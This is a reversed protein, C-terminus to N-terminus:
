DAGVAVGIEGDDGVWARFMAASNFPMAINGHRDISIFGGRGGLKSVDDLTRAGADVLSSGAYRMRADIEFGVGVRIFVEGTGTCSVAASRDDAFTGAGIIPTDGVRGPLKNTLGGTSTAAALHGDADLAVAGVTGFASDHDLVVVNHQQAKRLQRRRLEIIFYEPDVSDLGLEVNAADAGEGQFMVHPSREMITRALHIPSRARRAGAVAGCRRDRGDMIAADLEPAGDRNLVAGIGANFLPCEELRLVLREVADVSSAGDKLMQLGEAAIRRLAARQESTDVSDDLEGAGGHIALRIM